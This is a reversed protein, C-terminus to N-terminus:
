AARMLGVLAGDLEELAPILTGAVSVPVGLENTDVADVRPDTALHGIFSDVLKRVAEVRSVEITGGDIDRLAAMLRVKHNGTVGNLGLEAIAQYDQDDSRRLVDQLATIQADVRDSAETWISQVNRWTRQPGVVPVAEAAEIAVGLISRVWENQAQTAAVGGRNM